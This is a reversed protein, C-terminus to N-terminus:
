VQEFGSGDFEPGACATVGLPAVLEAARRILRTAKRQEDGAGIADHDHLSEAMFRLHNASQLVLAVWIADLDTLHSPARLDRLDAAASYQVAAAHRVARSSARWDDLPPVAIAAMRRNAAACIASTERAYGRTSLRGTGGGCGVAVTAVVALVTLRACWTAGTGLRTRM